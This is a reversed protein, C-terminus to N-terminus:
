SIKEVIWFEATIRDGSDATNFKGTVTLALAGTSDEAAVGNDSFEFVAQATGTGGGGNLIRSHFSAKQVNTAGDAVLYGELYGAGNTFVDGDTVMTAVTTSGYKMNFTLTRGGKDFDEINLRFKIANNTGLTGGPISVSFLTTETSSNTIQVETTNVDIKGGSIGVFSLVKNGDTQIVQGNSGDADPYAIDADGILVKGTGQGRLKLAVDTDSGAAEISPNVGTASNTVKIHNVASSTAPTEMVENGASDSIATTIKPTTIAPSAAGVAKDAGTINQLKYDHSSTDASSDIGVKVELAEAIDNVDSHQTAHDPSDLTDTATPNTLTDLSTPFDAM